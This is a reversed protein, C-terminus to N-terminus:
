AHLHNLAQPLSQEASRAWRSLIGWAFPELVILPGDMNLTFSITLDTEDGKSELKYSISTCASDVLTRYAIEDYPDAAVCEVDYEAVLGEWSVVGHYVAGVEGVAGSVLRCEKLEPRWLLDNRYDALFEWVSENRKCVTIVHTETRM